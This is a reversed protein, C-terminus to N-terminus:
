GCIGVVGKPHKNLDTVLADLSEMLFTWNGWEGGGRIMPEYRARDSILRARVRAVLILVLEAPLGDLDKWHPLGAEHLAPSYNYTFNHSHTSCCGQDSIDVDVSM